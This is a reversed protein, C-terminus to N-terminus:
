RSQTAQLLTLVGIANEVYGQLKKMEDVKLTSKVNTWARRLRNQFPGMGRALEAVLIAHRDIDMKMLTLGNKILQEHLEDSPWIKHERQISSMCGALFRLQTSMRDLEEPAQTVSDWFEVATHVTQGIQIALSAIGTVSGAFALAEAM